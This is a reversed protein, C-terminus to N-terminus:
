PTDEGMTSPGLTLEAEAQTIEVMEGDCSPSGPVDFPQLCSPVFDEPAAFSVHHVAECGTCRYFRDGENTIM